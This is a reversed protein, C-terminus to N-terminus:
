MRAVALDPAVTAFVRPSVCDSHRRSAAAVAAAFDTDCSAAALINYVRPSRNPWDVRWLGKEKRVARDAGASGPRPLGDGILEALARRAARGGDGPAERLAVWALQNEQLIRKSEKEGVTAPVLANGATFGKFEPAAKPEVVTGGEFVVRWTGAIKQDRLNEVLAELAEDIRGSGAPSSFGPGVRSLGSTAPALHRSEM